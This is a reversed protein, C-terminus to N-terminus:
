NDRRIQVILNEAARRRPTRFPFQTISNKCNSGTIHSKAKQVKKKKKKLKHPGCSTQAPSSATQNSHFRIISLKLLRFRFFLSGGSCQSGAAVLPLTTGRCCRRWEAPAVHANAPICGHMHPYLLAFEAIDIWLATRKFSLFGWGTDGYNAEGINHLLVHSSVWVNTRWRQSYKSHARVLQQWDTCPSTM